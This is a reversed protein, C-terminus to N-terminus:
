EEGSKWRRIKKWKKEEKEEIGEEEIGRVGCTPVDFVVIAEVGNYWKSWFRFGWGLFIKKKIEWVKCALWNLWYVVLYQDNKFMNM